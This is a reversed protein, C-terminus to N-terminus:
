SIIRLLRQETETVHILLRQCFLLNSNGTMAKCASLQYYYLLKLVFKIQFFVTLHMINIQQHIKENIEGYLKQM